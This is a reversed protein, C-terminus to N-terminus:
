TLVYTLYRVAGDIAQEASQACVRNDSARMELNMSNAFYLALAVLGFAIWLVIILVSGSQAGALTPPTSGGFGSPRIGFASLLGLDSPRSFDSLGVNPSRVETKPGREAKPRRIESRM